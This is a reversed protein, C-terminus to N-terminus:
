GTPFQSRLFELTAPDMMLHIKTIRNGSVNLAPVASIAASESPTFATSAMTIQAPAM